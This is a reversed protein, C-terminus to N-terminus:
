KPSLSPEVRLSKAIRDVTASLAPADAVPGNVAIVAWFDWVNNSVLTIHCTMVMPEKDDTLSQIVFSSEHDSLYAPPSIGIIHPDDLAAAARTWQGTIEEIPQGPAAEVILVRATEDKRGERAMILRSTATGPVLRWGDIADFVVTPGGSELRLSPVMPHRADRTVAKPTSACAALTLASLVFSLRQM